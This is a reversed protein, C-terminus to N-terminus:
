PPPPIGPKWGSPVDVEMWLLANGMAKGTQDFRLTNTAGGGLGNNLVIELSLINPMEYIEVKGKLWDKFHAKIKEPTVQKKLIEYNKENFAMLGINSIDGKDGARAYCLERLQVRKAM